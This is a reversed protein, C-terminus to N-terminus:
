LAFKWNEGLRVRLHKRVANDSVGLYRGVASFNSDRIMELLEEVPPWDVKKTKLKGACSKCRTAKRSILISCEECRRQEARSRRSRKRLPLLPPKWELGEESVVERIKRYVGASSSLNYHRVLERVSEFKPIERVLFERTVRVEDIYPGGKRHTPTQSHCNPCLFRLNERRHDFRLGNIHDLEFTLPAEGWTRIGCRACCGGRGELLLMRRVVKRSARSDRCFVIDPTWKSRIRSDESASAGKSWLKGTM